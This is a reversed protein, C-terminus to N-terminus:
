GNLNVAANDGKLSGGHIMKSSSLVAGCVVFGVEVNVNHRDLSSFRSYKETRRAKVPKGVPELVSSGISEEIGIHPQVIRFVFSTLSRGFKRLIERRRLGITTDNGKTLPPGTMAETCSRGIRESRCGKIGQFLEIPSLLNIRPLMM